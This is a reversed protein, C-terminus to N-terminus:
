AGCYQGPPCFSPTSSPIYPAPAPAPPIVAPMIAGSGVIPAPGIVPAIASTPLPALPEVPGCYSSAIPRPAPAYCVDDGCGGCGSVAFMGLALALALLTRM